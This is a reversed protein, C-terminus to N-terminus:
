ATFTKTVSAIRFPAQPTLTEHTRPDAVGSAGTWVLGPARVSVAVGPFAPHSRAFENLMRDLRTALPAETPMASTRDAAPASAVLVALALASALMTASLRRM